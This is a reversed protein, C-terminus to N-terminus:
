IPIYSKLVAQLEHKLLPKKKQTEQCIKTTPIQLAKFLEKIEKVGNLKKSASYDRLIDARHKEIDIPIMENNDNDIRMWSITTNKMDGHIGYHSCIGANWLLSLFELVEYTQVDKTLSDIIMEKDLKSKTVAVSKVLDTKFKAFEEKQRQESLLSINPYRWMMISELFSLNRSRISKMANKQTKTHSQNPQKIQKEVKPVTLWYGEEFENTEIPHTVRNEGLQEFIFKCSDM